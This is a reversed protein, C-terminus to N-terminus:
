SRRRGIRGDVSADQVRLSDHERERFSRASSWCCAIQEARGPDCLEAPCCPGQRRARTLGGLATIRKMPLENGGRTRGRITAISVYPAKSLRLVQRDM